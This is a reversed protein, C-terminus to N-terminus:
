RLSDPFVPCTSDQIAAADIRVGLLPVLTDAIALRGLEPAGVISRGPFALVGLPSNNQDIVVVGYGIDANKAVTGTTTVRWGAGGDGAVSAHWAPGAILRVALGTPMTEPLATVVGGQAFAQKVALPKTFADLGCSVSGSSRDCAALAFGLMGALSVLRPSPMM